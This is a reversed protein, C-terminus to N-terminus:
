KYLLFYSVDDAATDTADSDAKGTVVYCTLAVSFPVNIIPAVFGGGFPVIMDFFVASSGPTTNAATLNTCKIFSNASAHANRALIRCLTGSTAKIENENDGSGATIYRKISPVTGACPDTAALANLAILEAYVAKALAVQSCATADTTTCKADTTGGQATSAGNPMAGAAFSNAAIGGSATRVTGIVKTTEAALTATVATGSSLGRSTQAMSAPISIVALLLLVTCIKKM